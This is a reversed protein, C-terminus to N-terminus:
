FKFFLKAIKMFQKYYQVIAIKVAFIAILGLALIGHFVARVSMRDGVIEIYKICMYTLVGLLVAFVIGAIRHTIRLAAPNLKRDPQGMLAFMCLFAVLGAIMFFISVISKVYLLSM